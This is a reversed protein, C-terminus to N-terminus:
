GAITPFVNGANGACACGAIKRIQCSVCSCHNGHDNPNKVYPLGIYLKLSIQWSSLTSGHLCVLSVISRHITMHDNGIIVDRTVGIVSPDFYRLDLFCEYMFCIYESKIENRKGFHWWNWLQIGKWQKYCMLINPKLIHWIIKINKVKDLIDTDDSRDFPRWGLKFYMIIKIEGRFKYVVLIVTMM